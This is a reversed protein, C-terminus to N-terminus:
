RVALRAGRHEDLFARVESATAVESPPDHAQPRLADLIEAILVDDVVPLYYAPTTGRLFLLDFVRGVPGRRGENGPLPVEATDLRLAPSSGTLQDLRPAPKANWHARVEAPDVLDAIAVLWLEVAVDDDVGGDAAM